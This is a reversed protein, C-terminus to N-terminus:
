TQYNTHFLTNICKLTADDKCFEMHRNYFDKTRKSDEKYNLHLLHNIVEDETRMVGNPM